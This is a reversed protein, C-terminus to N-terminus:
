SKKNVVKREKAQIKLVTGDIQASLGLGQV